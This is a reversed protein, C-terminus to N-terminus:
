REGQTALRPGRIRDIQEALRKVEDSMDGKEHATLWQRVAATVARAENHGIRGLACARGVVELWDAADQPTRLQPLDAEEIGGKFKRATSRGGKLGAARLEDKRAPDHARCLGSAERVISEPARCPKGAANTASCKMAEVGGLSVAELGM